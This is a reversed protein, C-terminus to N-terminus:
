GESGQDGLGRATAIFRCPRQRRTRPRRVRVLGTPQCCGRQGRGALDGVRCAAGGGQAVQGDGGHGDGGLRSRGSGLAGRGGVRGRGSGIAFRRCPWCAM